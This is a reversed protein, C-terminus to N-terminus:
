IMAKLYAHGSRIDVLRVTWRIEGKIGFEREWSQSYPCLMIKNEYDGHSLNRSYEISIEQQSSYKGVKFISREQMFIQRWHQPHLVLMSDNKSSQHGSYFVTRFLYVPHFNDLFNMLTCAKDFMCAPTKKLILSPFFHLFVM